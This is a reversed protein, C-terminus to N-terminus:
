GEKTSKRAVKDALAWMTGDRATLLDECEDPVDVVEDPHVRVLGRELVLDLPEYWVNRIKM